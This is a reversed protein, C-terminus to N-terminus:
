ATIPKEARPNALRERSVLGDAQDDTAAVSGLGPLQRLLQPDGRLLRDCDIGIGRIQRLPEGLQLHCGDDV